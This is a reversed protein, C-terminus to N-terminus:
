TFFPCLNNQPFRPCRRDLSALLPLLHGLLSLVGWVAFLYLVLLGLSLADDSADPPPEVPPAERAMIFKLLPNPMDKGAM